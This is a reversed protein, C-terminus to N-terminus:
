CPAPAGSPSACDQHAHPLAFDPSQDLADDRLGFLGDVTTRPPPVRLPRALLLAHESQEEDAEIARHGPATLSDSLAACFGYQSGSAIDSFLNHGGQLILLREITM